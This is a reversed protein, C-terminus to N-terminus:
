KLDCIRRPPYAFSNAPITTFFSRSAHLAAMAFPFSKTQFTMSPRLALVPISQHSCRVIKGADNVELKARGRRYINAARRATQIRRTIAM